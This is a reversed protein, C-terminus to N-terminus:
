VVNEEAQGPDTVPGPSPPRGAGLFYPKLRDVNVTPSSTFRPTEAGLPDAHIHQGPPWRGCGCALPPRLKGLEAADLLQKTRLMIQDGVLFTTDM